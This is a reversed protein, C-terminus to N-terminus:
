ISSRGRRIPKGRYASAAATLGAPVRSPRALAGLLFPLSRHSLDEGKETTSPTPMAGVVGANETSHEVVSSGMRWQTVELVIGVSASTTLGFHRCGLPPSVKQDVDPPINM